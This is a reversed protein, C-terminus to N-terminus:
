KKRGEEKNKEEKFPYPSSLPLSSPSLSSSSQLLVSCSHLILLSWDKEVEDIETGIVGRRKRRRGFFEM